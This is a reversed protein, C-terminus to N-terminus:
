GRAALDRVYRVAQEVDHATWSSAGGANPRNYNQRGEDNLGVWALWQEDPEAAILAAAREVRATLTERRVQSRETIGKLGVAF